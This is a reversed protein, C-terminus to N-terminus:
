LVMPTKIEAFLVLKMVTRIRTTICTYIVKRGVEAVRKTTSDDMLLQEKTRGSGQLTKPINYVIILFCYM